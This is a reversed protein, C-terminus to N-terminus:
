LDYGAGVAVSDGDADSVDFNGYGGFVQFAPPMDHTNSGM